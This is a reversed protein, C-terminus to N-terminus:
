ADLEDLKRQIEEVSMGKITDIQKEALAETLQKRLAARETRKTAADNEAIRVSIVHKVVDLRLEAATKEPSTAKVFSEESALDLERKAAKAVDDLSFGNKSLLPLDWLQETSLPGKISTFRLKARSAQEFLNSMTVESNSM